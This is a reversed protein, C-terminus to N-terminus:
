YDVDFYRWGLGLLDVQGVIQPEEPGFNWTRITSQHWLFPNTIKGSNDTIFVAKGGRVFCITLGEFQFNRIIKKQSTSWVKIVSVNKRWTYLLFESDPSFQSYWPIHYSVPSDIENVTIAKSGDQPVLKVDAM